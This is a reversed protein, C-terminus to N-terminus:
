GERSPFQEALWRALDRRQGVSLEGFRQTADIDLLELAAYARRSLGAVFTLLELVNADDLEPRADFMLAVPDVSGGALGRKIEAREARWREARPLREDSSQM